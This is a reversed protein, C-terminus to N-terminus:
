TNRLTLGGSMVSQCMIKATRGRCYRKQLQRYISSETAIQMGKYLTYLNEPASTRIYNISEPYREQRKECLKEALRQMTRMATPAAGGTCGLILPCFSSQVVNLIRQQYKSNKLTEHYKYPDKHLKRSTKAHPNFIKM